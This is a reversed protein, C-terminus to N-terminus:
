FTRVVLENGGLIEGSGWPMGSRKRSGATGVPRRESDPRRM